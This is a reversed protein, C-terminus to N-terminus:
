AAAEVRKDPREIPGAPSPGRFGNTIRDHVCLHFPTPNIKREQFRYCHQCVGSPKHNEDEYSSLGRVVGRMKSLAQLNLYMQESQQAQVNLYHAQAQQLNMATSTGAGLGSIGSSVRPLMMNEMSAFVLPRSAPLLAPPTSAASLNLIGNRQLLVPSRFILPDSYREQVGDVNRPTMAQQLNHSGGWKHDKRLLISRPDLSEGKLSTKDGSTDAVHQVSLNAEVTKDMNQWNLITTMPNNPDRRLFIKESGHRIDSVAGSNLWHRSTQPISEPSRSTNFRANTGQFTSAQSVPTKPSSAYLQPSGEDSPRHLPKPSCTHHLREQNLNAVNASVMQPGRESAGDLPVQIRCTDETTIGSSLTADPSEGCFEGNNIDEGHPSVDGRPSVSSDEGNEMETSRRRSGKREKKSKKMSVLFYCDKESKPNHQNLIINFNTNENIPLKQRKNDADKGTRRCVFVASVQGAPLGVKQSLLAQFRKFTLVSHLGIYGKEHERDGDHFIVPYPTAFSEM